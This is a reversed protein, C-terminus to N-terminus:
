FAIFRANSNAQVREALHSDPAIAFNRHAVGDGFAARDDDLDTDRAAAMPERQYFEVASAAGKTEGPVALSQRADRLTADSTRRIIL